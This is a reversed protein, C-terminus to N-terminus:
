VIVAVTVAVAYVRANDAVVPADPLGTVSVKVGVLPEHGAPSPMVGADVTAPVNLGVVTTTLPVVAPVVTNVGDAVPVADIVDVVEGAMVM